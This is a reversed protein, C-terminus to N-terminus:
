RSVTLEDLMPQQMDASATIHVAIYGARTASFHLVDTTGTTRGTVTAVTRWTHGNDSVALSYTSARLTVVPGPAPPLSPAPASPWIQGWRLTATSMTQTGGRLSLTLTSPLKVSQWDTVPSGDVAALAPAGPQSSTARAGGCLAADDTVALDPRRTGLTLTRGTNIRRIRDGTKLPLAAGSNLTVSTSRPGIAVTFRRGHWSLDHLVIGSLQGTLSPDLQVATSNWRLGSYGYLFEQLFGGIGTMFTFAGGNKTESFQDFFDRIFPEVSRQTFVYSSCGPANLVASDISNVSDSMSPGEPDTRPVYYNLNDQEVSPPLPYDWPYELLTIDAQKVMQGQYGAFEPQAGLAADTPVVIGSAIQLWAAPVKYGLVRGASAANQLTEKAAVDTYIEDTVDPNEEDPGTVGDIDYTGDNGPTVRSAWFAAAQSLVPWGRTALWSKDGTVLYYQWQALAIDATVHQEYLGESFLSAPPPIQESGDLASEWPYRAGQYGTATAHREAEALRQFRYENMEDALDPHQALLAPYMWTEADWFIHGNYSNTSLGAPSIGWDVGDRTSSWLYFESANVDSALTPNGIVDIRGSWLTAWAADNARTLANFGIAAAARAQTQAAGLATGSVPSSVVGVYKTVTYSRGAVVTFGLQQGVSQDVSQDVPIMRGKVNVSTSLQSVIAATIKTGVTQVSVWDRRNSLSWGKELQTSLTAPSGDIADTITATGSWRPTM